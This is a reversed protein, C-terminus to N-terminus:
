LIHEEGGSRDDEVRRDDLFLHVVAHLLGAEPVLVLRQQVAPHFFANGRRELLLVAVRAVRHGKRIPQAIALPEAVIVHDPRRAELEVGGDEVQAVRELLGAAM